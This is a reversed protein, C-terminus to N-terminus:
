LPVICPLRQPLIDITLTKGKMVDGDIQIHSAGRQKITVRHHAPLVTFGRPLHKRRSLCTLTQLVVDWASRSQVVVVNVCGDRPCIKHNALLHMPSFANLAVVLNASVYRRKGDVTLIFDKLGSSAYTSAFALLYAGFGLRRKHKRTVREMLFVDYGQGAGVLSIYRRNIRLVDVLVPKGKIAVALSSRLSGRPIDLTKALVNGSGQPIIAVPVTLHHDVLYQATDRVTGDGGVILIRDISEDILKELADMSGDPSTTHWVWAIHRSRLFREIAVPRKGKGRAGSAPNYVVLVKM